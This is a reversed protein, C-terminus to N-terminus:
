KIEGALESMTLKRSAPHSTISQCIPDSASAQAPPNTGNVSTDQGQVQARVAKCDSADRRTNNQCFQRKRKPMKRPPKDPGHEEGEPPNDGEM